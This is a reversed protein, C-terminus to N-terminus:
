EVWYKKKMLKEEEKNEEEIKNKAISRLSGLDKKDLDRALKLLEKKSNLKQNDIVKALMVDLIAGIKPGPKIKLEKILDNGDVKLQKVSVADHSVKEVMYKFHRLKYPVAKPVGSGLRDAIRVDILDGINELGVKRIVRRVGTEGVEDVNYYFMHNKVLLVVKDIIQRPFKLRELIQGAIKAGVYEHNYFTAKEGTGRKALPKGIDHFLSALRVELKKSPCKELSAILHKYVTNYPGWYHHRSQTVKIGREIEPIIEDLLGSKHLLEMGKAPANSLIVKELEDRIRERSIYKLNKANKQIALFTNREITFGLQVSFRVARMMRLADENFRESADGVARIIKHVIDNKGNFLDIIEYEKKESEKAKSDRSESKVRSEQSRVKLAMANVTFDRRSLDEELTKAFKIKDPHRKDSYRSEIRYTTVEIVETKTKKEKEIESEQDNIKSKVGVTGFENEYVSDPFIKKVEEPKANTAIDWDKPEKGILLDRVCGGVVFAEFGSTELKRIIGIVNQPIKSLM